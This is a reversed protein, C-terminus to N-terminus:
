SGDIMRWGMYAAVGLLAGSILIIITWLVPYRRIRERM